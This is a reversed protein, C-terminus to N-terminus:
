ADTPAGERAKKDAEAALQRYGAADTPDSVRDAQARYYAAKAAWDDVAQQKPAAAISMVPGGPIPTARVKALEARLTELEAKAGETAKTVAAEVLAEVDAKSLGGTNEDNGANGTNVSQEQDALVSKGTTDSKLPNPVGLEKARRAILRKAAKYNGHKSRALVAARRLADADPIPYSGDPLANGQDAQKERQDATFTRSDKAALLEAVANKVIQEIEAVTAGAAPVPAPPLGAAARADNISLGGNEITAPTEDLVAKMMLFATGNAPTRVGDVREAEIKELETIEPETSTKEEATITDSM